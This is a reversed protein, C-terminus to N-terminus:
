LQTGSRLGGVRLQPQLELAQERRGALRRVQEARVLQAVQIDEADPRHASLEVLAGECSAHARFCSHSRTTIMPMNSHQKHTMLIRIACKGGENAEM